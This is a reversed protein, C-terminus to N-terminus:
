ADESATRIERIAARLIEAVREADGQTRLGVENDLDPLASGGPDRAAAVM